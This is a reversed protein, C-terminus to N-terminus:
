SVVQLDLRIEVQHLELFQLWSFSFTLCYLMLYRLVLPALLATKFDLEQILKGLATEAERGHIIQFAGSGIEVPSFSSQSHYFVRPCSPEQCLPFLKYTTSLRHVFILSHFSLFGYSLNKKKKKIQAVPLVSLSDQYIPPPPLNQKGLSLLPRLIQSKIDSLKSYFRRETTALEHLSAIYGM